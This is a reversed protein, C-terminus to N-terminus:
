NLSHSYWVQFPIPGPYFQSCSFAPPGLCSWSVDPSGQAEQRLTKPSTAHFGPSSGGERDGVGDRGQQEGFVCM